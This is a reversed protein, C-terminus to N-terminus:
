DYDLDDLDDPMDYGHREFFRERARKRKACFGINGSPSQDDQCAKHVTMRRRSVSRRKIDEDSEHQRVPPRGSYKERVLMSLLNANMRGRM